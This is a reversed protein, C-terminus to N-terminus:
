APPSRPPAPPSIPTLVKDQKFQTGCVRCQWVVSDPSIRRLDEWQTDQWDGQAPLASADHRGLELLDSSPELHVRELTGRRGCHPCRQLREQIATFILVFPATVIILPLMLVIWCGIPLEFRRRKM